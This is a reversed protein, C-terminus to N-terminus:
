VTRRFFCDFTPELKSIRSAFLPLALKTGKPNDANSGGGFQTPHAVVLENMPQFQSANLKIALDQCIQRNFLRLSKLTQSLLCLSRDCTCRLIPRRCNAKFKTMEPPLRNKFKTMGLRRLGALFRSKGYQKWGNKRPHSALVSPM